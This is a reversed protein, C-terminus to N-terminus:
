LALGHMSLSPYENHQAFDGLGGKAVWKCRKKGAKRQTHSRKAPAGEQAQELARPTSGSMAFPLMEDATGDTPSVTPQVQQL